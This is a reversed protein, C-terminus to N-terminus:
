EAEWPLPWDAEVEVPAPPTVPPPAPADSARHQDLLWLSIAKESAGSAQMARVTRLPDPLPCDSQLSRVYARHLDRLLDIETPNALKVLVPNPPSFGAFPDPRPRDDFGGYISRTITVAM